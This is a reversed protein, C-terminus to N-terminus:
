KTSTNANRRVWTGRTTQSFDTRRRQLKLGFDRHASTTQLKGPFSSSLQSAGRERCVTSPNGASRAPESSRTNLSSPKDGSESAPCVTATTAPPCFVLGLVVFSFITILNAHPNRDKGLKVRQNTWCLRWVSAM